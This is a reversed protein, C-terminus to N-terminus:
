ENQTSYTYIFYDFNRTDSGLYTNYNNNDIFNKNVVCNNNKMMIYPIKYNIKVINFNLIIYILSTCIDSITFEFINNIFIDLYLLYKMFYHKNWTFVWLYMIYKCAIDFVDWTHLYLVKEQLILVESELYVKINRINTYIHSKTIFNTLEM